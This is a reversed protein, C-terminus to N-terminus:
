PCNRATYRLAFQTMATATRGCADRATARVMWGAGIAGSARGLPQPEGPGAMGGVARHAVYSPGSTIVFPPLIEGGNLYWQFTVSLVSGGTTTATFDYFRETNGAQVCTEIVAGSAPATITVALTGSCTSPVDIPPATDRPADSPPSDMGVVPTDMGPPTDMGVVPTDMDVIPTDMGVVPTDHDVVGDPPPTADTMVTGDGNSTELTRADTADGGGGDATRPGGCGAMALMTLVTMAWRKM